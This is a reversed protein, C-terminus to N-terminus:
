ALSLYLALITLYFLMMHSTHINASNCWHDFDCFCYTVNDYHSRYVDLESVENHM